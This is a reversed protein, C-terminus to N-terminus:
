FKRWVDIKIDLDARAQIDLKTHKGSGKFTWKLYKECGGGWGVCIEFGKFIRNLIECWKPIRNEFLFIVSLKRSFAM